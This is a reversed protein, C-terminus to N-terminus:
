PLEEMKSLEDIRDRAEKIVQWLREIETQKERATSIEKNVQESKDTM